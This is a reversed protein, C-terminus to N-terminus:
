LIADDGSLLEVRFLLCSHARAASNISKGELLALNLEVKAFM